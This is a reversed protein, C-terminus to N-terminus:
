RKATFEVCHGVLVAVFDTVRDVDEDGHIGLLALDNIRPGKLPQAVDMLKRQRIENLRTRRVPTELVAQAHHFQGAAHVINDGALFAQKVVANAVEDGFGASKFEVVPAPGPPHGREAVVESM